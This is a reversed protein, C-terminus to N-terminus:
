AIEKEETLRFTLGGTVMSAEIPKGPARPVRMVLTGAGNDRLALVARVTEERTRGSAMLAALFDAAEQRERETIM